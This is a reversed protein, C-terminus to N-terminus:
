GRRWVDGGQGRSRGALQQLELLAKAEELARILVCRSQEKRALSEQREFTLRSGAGGRGGPVAAGAEDTQCFACVWSGAQSTFASSWSDIWLKRYM